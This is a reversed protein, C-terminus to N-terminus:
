LILLNQQLTLTESLLLNIYLRIRELLNDMRSVVGFNNVINRDVMGQNRLAKLKTYIDEDNTTLFGGDGCANLNKLPHASFCGVDGFSGVKKDKNINTQADFLYKSTSVPREFKDNYNEFHTFSPFQDIQELVNFNFIGDNTYFYSAIMARLWTNGSKPYSALWIIM